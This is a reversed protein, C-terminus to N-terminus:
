DEIDILPCIRHKKARAFEFVVRGIGSGKDKKPKPKRNILWKEIAEKILIGGYILAAAVIASGIVLATIKLVLATAIYIMTAYAGVVALLLFPVWYPVEENMFEFAVGNLRRWSAALGRGVRRLVWWSPKWIPRMLVEIGGGIRGFFRGVESQNDELWEFGLAAGVLLVCSAAILGLAAFFHGPFLFVTLLLATLAVPGVLVMWPRLWSVRSSKAHLFWTAPGWFLVVRVYHCLNERYGTREPNKYKSREQWFSYLRGHWSNRNISWTSRM